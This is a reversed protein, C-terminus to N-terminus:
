LTILRTKNKNKYQFFDGRDANNAFGVIYLYIHVFIYVTIIYHGNFKEKKLRFNLLAHYTWPIPFTCSSIVSFYRQRVHGRSREINIQWMLYQVVLGYQKGYKQFFFFFFFVQLKSWYDQRVGRVFEEGSVREGGSNTHLARSVM